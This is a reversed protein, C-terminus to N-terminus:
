YLHAIPILAKFTARSSELFAPINLIVDKIGAKKRDMYYKLLWGYECMFIQKSYRDVVVMRHVHKSYLILNLGEFWEKYLTLNGDGFQCTKVQCHILGRPYRISFDIGRGDLIQSGCAPIIALQHHDGVGSMGIVESGMGKLGNNVGHRANFVANWRKGRGVEYNGAEVAKIGESLWKLIVVRTAPDFTGMMRENLMIDYLDEILSHDYEIVSVINNV